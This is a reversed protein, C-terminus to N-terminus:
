PPQRFEYYKEATQLLEAKSHTHALVEVLVAARVATQRMKPRVIAAIVSNDRWRFIKTSTIVSGRKFFEQVDWSSILKSGNPKLHLRSVNASSAATYPRREVIVIDYKPNSLALGIVCALGNTGAGVIIVGRPEATSM